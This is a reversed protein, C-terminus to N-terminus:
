PDMDDSEPQLSRSMRRFEVKVGDPLEVEVQELEEFGFRRYFPAGPLTAMLEVTRFGASRAGDMCHRLIAAGIGRRAAEPEVFFARIRAADVRPNLLPDLESKMQDGGYLTRRRSWGGCGVIAGGMEAVVYTGDDILTSDPGFVHEILSEIQMATYYTGSLGRASRPILLSIAPIDSRTALRLM